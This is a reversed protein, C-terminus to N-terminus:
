TPTLARMEMTATRAPKGHARPVTLTVRGLVPQARVAAHALRLPDEVRRNPVCRIVASDGM